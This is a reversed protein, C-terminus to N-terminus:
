RMKDLDSGQMGKSNYILYSSLLTVFVLYNIIDGVQTVHDTGETDLFVIVFKDCELVTTAMWIGSTCAEFSDSTQFIDKLGLMMSLLYSKGTRSPGCISLVAVPKEINRLIDLANQNLRLSGQDSLSVLQVSKKERNIDLLKRTFKIIENKQECHVSISNTNSDLYVVSPGIPRHPDTFLYFEIIFIIITLKSFALACAWYLSYM